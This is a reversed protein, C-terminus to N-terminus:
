IKFGSTAVKTPPNAMIPIPDPDDDLPCPLQALGPRGFLPQLATCSIEGSVRRQSLYELNKVVRENDIRIAGAMNVRFCGNEQTQCQREIVQDISHRSAHQTQAKRQDDKERDNKANKGNPKASAGPIM